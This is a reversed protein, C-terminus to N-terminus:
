HIDAEIPILREIMSIKREALSEEHCVAPIANQSNGATFWDNM